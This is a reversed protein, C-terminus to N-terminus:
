SALYAAVVENTSGYAKVNGQDLWLCTDCLEQIMSPNHSVIVIAKALAMFAKMKRLAKAKFKKDGAALVEDIILIEPDIHVAISFGLRAKMGSSYYKIQTEIFKELGSFEVIANYREQLLRKDFGMYIGNLYINERGSLEPKFGAGLSLFSSVKGTVTLTGEDPHLVGILLKLLTSKGAGNNGIVGLIEGEKVSFSVNRLAWFLDQDGGKLLLGILSQSKRRQDKRRKVKQFYIGIKEASIVTKGFSAGPLCTEKGFIDIELTCPKSVVDKEFYVAIVVFILRDNLFPRLLDLEVRAQRSAADIAGIRKVLRNTKENRVLIEFNLIASDAPSRWEFILTKLDDSLHYSLTEPRKYCSDAVAMKMEGEALGVGIRHSKSFTHVVQQSTMRISYYGAPLPEALSYNGASVSINEHKIVKATKLNKIIVAVTTEADGGDYVWSVESLRDVYLGSPEVIRISLGQKELKDKLLKERKLIQQLRQQLNKRQEVLRDRVAKEREFRALFSERVAEWNTNSQNM